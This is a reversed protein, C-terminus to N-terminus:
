IAQLSVPPIDLSQSFLQYATERLGGVHMGKRAKGATEPMLLLEHHTHTRRRFWLFLGVAQPPRRSFWLCGQGGEGGMTAPEPADLLYLPSSCGVSPFGEFDWSRRRTQNRERRRRMNRKARTSDATSGKGGRTSGFWAREGGSTNTHHHYCPYPCPLAPSSWCRRSCRTAWLYISLRKKKSFSAGWVM